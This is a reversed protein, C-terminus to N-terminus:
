RSAMVIRRDAIPLRWPTKKWGMAEASDRRQAGLALRWTLRGGSVAPLPMMGQTRQPSQGRRLRVSLDAQLRLVMSREQRQPMGLELGGALQIPLATALPLLMRIPR